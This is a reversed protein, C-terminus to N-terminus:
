ANAAAGARQKQRGMAARRPRLENAPASAKGRVMPKADLSSMDFGHYLSLFRFPNEQYSKYMVNNIDASTDFYDIRPDSGRSSLYHRALMLGFQDIWRTVESASLARELYSQLFHLFLATNDTPNM